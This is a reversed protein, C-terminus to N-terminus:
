NGDKRPMAIVNPLVPQRPDEDLLEGEETRYRVSDALAPEPTTVKMATKINVADGGLHKVTFTVTLKGDAGTEKVKEILEDLRKTALSNLKGKSLGAVTESFEQPPM